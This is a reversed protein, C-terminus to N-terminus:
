SRKNLVQQYIKRISNKEERQCIGKIAAILDTQNQIPLCAIKSLATATSWRVVTGSHSTNELLKIISPDLNKPFLHAINAIVRASEWKIRPAKESLNKSVFELCHLGALEPNKRTTNEIAEICSAKITEKSDKAFLILEEISLQKELLAKSLIETKEKPKISNDIFLDKIM